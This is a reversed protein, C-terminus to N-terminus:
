GPMRPRLHAESGSSGREESSALLHTMAARAADGRGDRVAEFVVRHDPVLDRWQKSHQRALRDHVHLASTIVVDMRGLLENHSARLLLVHFRLDAALVRDPHREAAAMGALAEGLDRLDDETRRHAALRAGAPEVIQRLEALDRRLADSPTEAECRWSMVDPDLLQWASREPVVTGQDPRDEALGKASLARLAERVVIQSVGLDDGISDPDLLSGASYDGRIVRIGLTRVVDAQRGRVPDSVM